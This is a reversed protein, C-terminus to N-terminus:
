WRARRPVRSPAIAVIRKGIMAFGPSLLRLDECSKLVRVNALASSSRRCERRLRAEALPQEELRIVASLAHADLQQQGSALDHRAKLM